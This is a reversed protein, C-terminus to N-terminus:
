TQVPIRKPTVEARKPIKITLVGDGYSAEVKDAEVTGPLQILRRFEGHRREIRHFTKGKEEQEEKKEGSIQLNGEVVEVTVDEPKMGPVEVTVVYGNDNETVNLSPTFRSLGWEEADGFYREMLDEMENEFRSFTAPFRERWPIMSRLM